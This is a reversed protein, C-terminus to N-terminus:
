DLEHNNGRWLVCKWQGPDKQHPIRFYMDAGSSGRDPDPDSDNKRYKEKAKKRKM